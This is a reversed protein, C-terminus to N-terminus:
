GVPQTALMAPRQSFGEFWGALTPRAQRWDLSAFRFDLYGLACGITIEVVSPKEALLQTAEAELADLTRIIAARKREIWGPSQEGAPRRSELLISVAAELLGDALTQRRLARWRASGRPLSTLSGARGQLYEIILDSGPLLEGKETALAPIQGLPNVALFEAENANYDTMVEDVLGELELELIAVRVKRAFPSTRSSYLKMKM